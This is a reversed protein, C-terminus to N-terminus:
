DGIARRAPKVAIAEAAFTRASLRGEEVETAPDVAVAPKDGGAQRVPRM